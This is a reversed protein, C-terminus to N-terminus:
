SFLQQFNDKNLFNNQNKGYDILSQIIDKDLNFNVLPLDNNKIIIINNPYKSLIKYENGRSPLTSAIWLYKFISQTHNYSEQEFNIGITHKINQNYLDIPFNNFIFGDCYYKDNIKKPPFIGPIACSAIIADIINVNPFNDKNFIVYEATDLCSVGINLIKNTMSYHQKFTISDNQIMYNTLTSLVIKMNTSTSISQKFLLNDITLDGMINSLDIETAVTELEYPTYGISLLYTIISGASVGAYNTVSDLNLKQLLGIVAFTKVGGGSIVLNQITNMLIIYFFILLIFM